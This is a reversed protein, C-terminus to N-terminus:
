EGNEWFGECNDLAIRLMRRMREVSPEGDGRKLHLTNFCTAANPLGDGDSLVVRLKQPRHGGAHAFAAFGGTPTASSGTWFQLLRRRDDENLEAM